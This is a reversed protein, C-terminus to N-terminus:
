WRTAPFIWRFAALAQEMPNVFSMGTVVGAGGRGHAQDMRNVRAHCLGRGLGAFQRRHFKLGNRAVMHGIKLPQFVHRYKSMM